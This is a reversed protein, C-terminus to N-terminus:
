ACACLCSHVCVRAWRFCGRHYLRGDALHRQMLHVHQGCVGCTSSLSGGAAQGQPTPVVSSGRAGGECGAQGLPLPAPPQHQPGRLVLVTGLVEREWGLTCFALGMGLAGPPSAQLSWRGWGTEVEGQLALRPAFSM